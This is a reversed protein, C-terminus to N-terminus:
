DLKIENKEEDKERTGKERRRGVLAFNKDIRDNNSRETKIVAVGLFFFTAHRRLPFERLAADDRLM